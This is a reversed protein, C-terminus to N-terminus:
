DARHMLTEQGGDQRLQGGAGGVGASQAEGKVAQVIALGTNAHRPALVQDAIGVAADERAPQHRGQQIM